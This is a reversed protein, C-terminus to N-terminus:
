PECTARSESIFVVHNWSDLGLSSVVQKVPGLRVFLIVTIQSNHM